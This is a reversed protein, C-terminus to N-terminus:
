VYTNIFEIHLQPAATFETLHRRILETLQEHSMCYTRPVLLHFHFQPADKEGTLRFDYLKLQTDIRSIIEECRARWKKVEPDLTDFPDSHLILRIPMTRAIEIEAAELADHLYVPDCDRNVEAHATAFYRNPGYNHIIIDHIGRIEPCRLLRQRMEEVLERDPCEGLLPNITDRLVGIGAFIVFGAVALGACGDVPFTTFRSLGLSILVLGTTLLDSLSDFAAAHIVTSEIRAAIARYFFFLWSKVGLTAALIVIVTSNAAVPQPSFIRELSCKLFDLGVAIIFVAVVLGAVYEIRGHGFPHENDAPKASLKFGVVTVIASGADSLNNVADAAVAISGSLLGLTLKVAFLLLNVAIGVGGSLLGYALRVHPDSTQSSNKVFLRILLSTLM